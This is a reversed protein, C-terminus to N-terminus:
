TQIPYDGTFWTHVSPCDVAALAHACMRPDPKQVQVAESIVAASLYRGISRQTIKPAQYQVEGNTVM